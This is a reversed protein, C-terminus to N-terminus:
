NRQLYVVTELHAKKVERKEEWIVEIRVRHLRGEYGLGEVKCTFRKGDIEHVTKSPLNVLDRRLESLTQDILWLANSHNLSGNVARLPVMMSSVVFVLGIALITVAVLVDVLIYGSTSYGRSLM